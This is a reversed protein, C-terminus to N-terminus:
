RPPQRKDSLLNRINRRQSFKNQHKANHNPVLPEVRREERSDKLNLVLLRPCTSPQHVTLTRGIWRQLSPFRHQLQPIFSFGFTTTFRRRPGASISCSTTSNALLPM